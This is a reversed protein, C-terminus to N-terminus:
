GNKLTIKFSTKSSKPIPSISTLEGTSEDVITYTEKVVKLLDEREKRKKDAELCKTQLLQWVKDRSYDYKTGVEALKLEVGFSTLSGNNRSLKDVITESLKERVLELSQKLFEARAIIDTEEVGLHTMESILISAFEEAKKKTLQEDVAINNIAKIIDM